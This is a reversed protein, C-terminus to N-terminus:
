GERERSTSPRIEIRQLGLGLRRPDKSHPLTDPHAITFGIRLTGDLGPVDAPIPAALEVRPQHVDWRALERGNASVGVVQNGSVDLNVVADFVLILSAPRPHPLVIVLSAANGETWVGWAEPASWGDLLAFPAGAQGAGALPIPQGITALHRQLSAVNFAQRQRSFRQDIPDATLQMWGLVAAYGAALAACGALAARERARDLGRTILESSFIM